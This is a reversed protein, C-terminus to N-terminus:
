QNQVFKINQEHHKNIIKLMSFTESHFAVVKIIKIRQWRRTCIEKLTNIQSEGQFKM